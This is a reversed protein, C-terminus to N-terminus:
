KAVSYERCYWNHDVFVVGQNPNTIRGTGYYDGDSVEFARVDKIWDSVEGNVQCFLELSYHGSRLPLKPIECIFEGDRSIDEFGRDYFYHSSINTVKYGSSDYIAVAVSTKAPVRYGSSKYRFVLRVFQGSVFHSTRNGNRTECHFSTFRIPGRGDREHIDALTESSKLSYKQLYSQIATSPIADQLIKGDDLVITRKCIGAV